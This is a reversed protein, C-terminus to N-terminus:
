LRSRSIGELRAVTQWTPAAAEQILIEGTPSVCLDGAPLLANLAFGIAVVTEPLLKESPTGIIFPIEEHSAPPSLPPKLSLAETTM